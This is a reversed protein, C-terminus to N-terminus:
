LGPLRDSAIDLLRGNAGAYVSGPKTSKTILAGAGIVCEAGITIADRLTANVGFFCNPGVTVNGSIVVHSAIFCHDGIVTEPGVFGGSWMVIDNGLRAFPQIISDQIFCNDGIQAGPWTVSASSVYSVLEYGRAKAADYKGARVKNLRSYGMAIFMSVEDPPHERELEEFPLVPLGRHESAELREGDVTFAVVEHPSDHTFLFHALDAVQGVGFLVLRKGVGGGHDRGAGTV